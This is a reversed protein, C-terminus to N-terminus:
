AIRRRRLISGAKITTPNASSANQAWQLTFAGSADSHYASCTFFVLQSAVANAAIIVGSSVGTGINNSLGTNGSNRANWNLLANTPTNFGARLGGTGATCTVLAYVQFEYYAPNAPPTFSLEADNSPSTNSTRTEDSGKTVTTWDTEWSPNAGSGNTKLYQGSTGAALAAWASSGRYLIAGQTSSITDLLSNANVTVGNATLTGSVAFNGTVGSLDSQLPM